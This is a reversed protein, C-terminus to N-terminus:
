VCNSAHLGHVCLLIFHLYELAMESARPRASCHYVNPFYCDWTQTLGTLILGCWRCVIPKTQPHIGSSDNMPLFRNQLQSDLLVVESIVLNITASYKINGSSSNITVIWQCTYNYIYGQHGHIQSCRSYSESGRSHKPLTGTGGHNCPTM